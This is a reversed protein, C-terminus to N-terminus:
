PRMPTNLHDVFMRTLIDPLITFCFWFVLVILALKIALGVWEMGLKRGSTREREM